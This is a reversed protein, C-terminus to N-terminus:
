QMKDKWKFIANVDHAGGSLGTIHFRPKATNAASCSCNASGGDSCPTPKPHPRAPPPPPPLHCPEPCPLGVWLDQTGKVCFITTDATLNACLASAPGAKLHAADFVFSTCNANAGGRCRPDKKDPCPCWSGRQGQPPRGCEDCASIFHMALKPEAAAAAAAGVMATALLM